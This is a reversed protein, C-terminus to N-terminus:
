AGRWRRFDAAKEAEAGFGRRDVELVGRDVLAVALDGEVDGMGLDIGNGGVLAVVGASRQGIRYTLPRWGLCGGRMADGSTSWALRPSFSPNESLREKPVRWGSREDKEPGDEPQEAPEEHPGARAARDHNSRRLPGGKM